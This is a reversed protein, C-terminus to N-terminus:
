IMVQCRSDVHWIQLNSKKVLDKTNRYLIAAQNM